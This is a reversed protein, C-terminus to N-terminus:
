KMRHMSEMSNAVVAPVILNDDLLELCGRSTSVAESMPASLILMAEEIEPERVVVDTSTRPLSVVRTEVRVESAIATGLEPTTGETVGTALALPEAEVTATEM